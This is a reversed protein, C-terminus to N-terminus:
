FDKKKFKRYGIILVAITIIIGIIWAESMFVVNKNRLYELNNLFIAYPLYGLIKTLPEFIGTFLNLIPELVGYVFLLFIIISSSKIKFIGFTYSIAFASILIPLMNLLAMIYNKIGPDETGKLFVQGLIITIGVLIIGLLIYYGTGILFKSWFIKSRSVGGHISAKILNLDKGLLINSVIFGLMIILPGEGVVNRYLFMINNYEFTSSGRGAINLVIVLSLILISTIALLISFTKKRNFRYIESKMYNIM